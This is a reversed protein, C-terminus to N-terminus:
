KLAAIIPSLIVWALVTKASLSLIIFMREVKAQLARLDECVNRSSQLIMTKYFLWYAQVFGFCIFLVMEAMILGTVFDPVKAATSYSTSMLFADIVPAYAVVCTVWGVLHPVLWCWRGLTYLVIDDQPFQANESLTSLLDAVLGLMQTAFILAFMCVLVYIDTIGAEVAICLMMVSASISYEIYNWQAAITDFWMPPSLLSASGQFFASLVFFGAIAYRVDLHGADVREFTITYNGMFSNHSVSNTSNTKGPTLVRVNKGLPFNGANATDDQSNLRFILALVIVAQALHMCATYLSLRSNTIKQTKPPYGEFVDSAVPVPSYPAWM